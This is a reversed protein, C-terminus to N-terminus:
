KCLEKLENEFKNATDINQEVKRLYVDLEKCLRTMEEQYNSIQFMENREDLEEIEKLVFDIKESNWILSKNIIENQDFLSKLLPNENM